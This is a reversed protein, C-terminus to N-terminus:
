KTAGAPSSATLFAVLTARAAATERPTIPLRSM